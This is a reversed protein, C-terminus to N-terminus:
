KYDLRESSVIKGDETVVVRYYAQKGYLIVNWNRFGKKYLGVNQLKIDEGFKQSVEAISNDTITDRSVVASDPITRKGVSSCSVMAGLCLTITIKKIKNKV